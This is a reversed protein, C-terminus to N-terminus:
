RGWVGGFRVQGASLQALDVVRESSATLWARTSSRRAQEATPAHGTAVVHGATGLVEWAWGTGQPYASAIM